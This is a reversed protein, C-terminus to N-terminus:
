RKAMYKYMENDPVDFATQFANWFTMRGDRHGEEILSYSARSIGCIEAIQDQTLDHAYRFMQLDKRRGKVKPM